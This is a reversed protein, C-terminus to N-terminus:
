NGSSEASEGNDGGPPQEGDSSGDDIILGGETDEPLSGANEGPDPENRGTELAERLAERTQESLGRGDISLDSEVYSIGRYVSPQDVFNMSYSMLKRLEEDFEAKTSKGYFRRLFELRQAEKIRQIEVQDDDSEIIHPTIFVLLNTKRETKSTSRFLGGFLPLDGLVPVKSETTSDTTGVLGAVVLTQNDRMLSTSALRRESTIPGGGAAVSTSSQASEEVEQVEIEYELTVEDDANIRPTVLLKIAVEERQFSVVPQGLSNLGSSTPFPVRRGVSLDAEQNDLTSVAPNSVINTVGSTKLANVVVGFSPIPLLTGDSLPVEISEGFVGVALGSLADPSLGLSTANLQQSLFGTSGDSPSQPLHAALGLDFSDESSLEMVVAEVYVERRRVDIKDIVQKVVRFDEINAVIILSNTQEDAAIRMGSDLAAIASRDEADAAAANAAASTRTSATRAAATGRAGNRGAQGQRGEQSLSQLTNVIEEAVAYRLQVVHIQARHQPDVDIDVEEILDRVAQHGEADALVILVNTREDEIVKAIFQAEAGASVPDTTTTRRTTSRSSASSTRRSSSRSTRADRSSRSSRANDDTSTAETGYLDEIIQKVDSATAYRLTYIQMTSKPSGVDLEKMVKYLKRINAATDTIILTNTPPYSVISADSPVMTQIIKQMDDVRTNELQILQTVYGDSETPVGTGIRIPREGASDKKIIKATTGTVTISFGSVDLASLFAEWAADPSVDEYSLLTVKAGELEALDSIIFNLRRWDAFYKVLTLLSSDPPFNLRVKDAGGFPKPLQGATVPSPSITVTGDDNETTVTANDDTTEQAYSAPAFALLALLGFAAMRREFGLKITRNVDCGLCTTTSGDDSM